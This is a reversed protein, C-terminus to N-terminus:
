FGCEEMKQILRAYARETKENGPESKKRLDYLIQLSYCLDPNEKLLDQLEQLEKETADGNLELSILDWIRKQEM